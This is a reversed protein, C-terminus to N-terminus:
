YSKKAPPKSETAPKTAGAVTLHNVVRKVGKTQKAITVAHQAEAKKDVTGNLTVVGNSTDVDIKLGSVDKDALLKSKVSATIAADEVVNGTKETAQETKAKTQQATSQGIAPHAVALAVIVAGTGFIIRM